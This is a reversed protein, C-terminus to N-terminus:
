LGPVAGASIAVMAAPIILMTVFMMVMKIYRIAQTM